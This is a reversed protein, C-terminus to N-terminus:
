QNNVGTFTCTVQAGSTDSLTLTRQGPVSSLSTSVSYTQGAVVSQNSFVVAQTGDSRQSVLTLTDNASASYTIVIPGNIPYGSGCGRDINLTLTTPSPGPAPVGPTFLLGWTTTQTPNNVPFYTGSGQYEVGLGMKGEFFFPNGSPGVVTFSVLNNLPRDAGPIPTAIGSGNYSVGNQTINVKLLDFGTTPDPGLDTFSISGFGQADTYRFTVQQNLPLVPTPAPTPITQQALVHPAALVSITGLLLVASLFSRKM